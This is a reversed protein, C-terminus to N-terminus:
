GRADGTRQPFNENCKLNLLERLKPNIEFIMEDILLIDADVLEFVANFLHDIIMDKDDESFKDFGVVDTVCDDILDSQFISEWDLRQHKELVASMVANRAWVPSLYITQSTMNDTGTERASNRRLESKPRRELNVQLM